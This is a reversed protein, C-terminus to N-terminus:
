AVCEIKATVQTLLADLRADVAEQEDPDDALPELLDLADKILVLDELSLDSLYFM